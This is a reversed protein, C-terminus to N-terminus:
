AAIAAMTVEKVADGDGIERAGARERGTTANTVFYRPERSSDLRNGCFDTSQGLRPRPPASVHRSEAPAVDAWSPEAIRTEKAPPM